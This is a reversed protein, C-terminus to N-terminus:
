FKECSHIKSDFIWNCIGTKGTPKVIEPIFAISYPLKTLKSNSMNNDNFHRWVGNFKWEHLKQNQLSLYKQQVIPKTIWLYVFTWFATM